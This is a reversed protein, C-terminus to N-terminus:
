ASNDKIDRNIMWPGLLGSYLISGLVIPMCIDPYLGPTLFYVRDPDYIQPLQSMVFAPLGSAYVVKAISIEERTFKLTNGIVSVLGYRMVMLLIVLAFGVFM